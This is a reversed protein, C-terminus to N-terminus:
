TGQWESLIIGNAKFLIKHKDSVLHNWYDVRAKTFLNYFEGNVGYKGTEIHHLQDTFKKIDDVSHRKEKIEKGKKIRSRITDKPLPWNHIGHIIYRREENLNGIKNRIDEWINTLEPLDSKIFESIRKLKNELSLGICDVFALNSKRLDFETLSCLIALGYEVKSFAIVFAGIAEKFNKDTEFISFKKKM